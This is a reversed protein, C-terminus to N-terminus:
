HIWKEDEEGLQERTNGGARSDDEATNIKDKWMLKMRWEEPDLNVWLDGSILRVNWFRSGARLGDTLSIDKKHKWCQEQSSSRCLTTGRERLLGDWFAEGRRFGRILCTWFRHSLTSYFRCSTMKVCRSGSLGGDAGVGCIQCTFTCTARKVM